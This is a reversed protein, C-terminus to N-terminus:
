NNSCKESWTVSYGRFFIGFEVEIKCDQSFKLLLDNYKSRWKTRSSDTNNYVFVDLNWIEYLIWWVSLSLSLSPTFPFFFFTNFKWWGEYLFFDNWGSPWATANFFSRPNGKEGGAANPFWHVYDREWERSWNNARSCTPRRSAWLKGMNTRVAVYDFCCRTRLTACARRRNLTCVVLGGEEGRRAACLRNGQFNM